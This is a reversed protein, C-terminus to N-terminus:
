MKHGTDVRTFIVVRRLMVFLISVVVHATTRVRGTVTLEQVAFKLPWIHANVSKTMESVDELLGRSDQSDAQM